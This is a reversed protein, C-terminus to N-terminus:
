SSISRRHSVKKKVLDGTLSTLESASLAQEVCTTSAVPENCTSDTSCTSDALELQSLGLGLELDYSPPRRVALAHSLQNLFRLFFLFGVSLAAPRWFSITEPRRLGCVESFGWIAGAGGFVELILKPLFELILAFIVSKQARRGMTKRRYDHSSDTTQGPGFSGTTTEIMRRQTPQTSAMSPTSEQTMTMTTITMQKSPLSPVLAKAATISNTM